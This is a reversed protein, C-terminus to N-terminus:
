PSNMKCTLQLPVVLLSSVNGSVLQSPHLQLPRSPFLVKTRLATEMARRSRSSEVSAPPVSSLSRINGKPFSCNTIQHHREAASSATSRLPRALLSSRKWDQYPFKSSKLAAFSVFCYNNFQYVM